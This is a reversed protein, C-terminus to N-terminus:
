CERLGELGLGSAVPTSVGSDNAVGQDIGETDTVNGDGFRETESSQVSFELSVIMNMQIQPEGQDLRRPRPVCERQMRKKRVAARVMVM